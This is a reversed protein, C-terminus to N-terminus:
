RLSRVAQALLAVRDGGSLRPREGRVAWGRARLREFIRAYGAQMLLAPALAKGDLGSRAADAQRFAEEAERSLAECLTAFRPDAVLARAPADELGVSRLRTLPVYVREMAADEDVDRLINVLQLARGLTTAFHDADAAGFIRVALVGVAGAVCRCYRELAADDALRVRDAADSAMGDLMAHFERNPLDYASRAWALERGVPTVPHTPLRDIEERWTDLFRRKEAEPAAGDAIDDVARCFAYVAHIARRREGKAAAMGLAFSSGSRKVMGRVVARDDRQPRVVLVRGARLFARAFDAKGLAVRGDIPDSARLRASLRRGLTVTAAAEAGLRRDGIEAPLSAARALLDDVRDLAADLVPRREAARGPTFFADVGGARELWPLPLYIRDLADRDRELDQLHNLIQLASSLADSAAYAEEGEGHLRLLFRGVPDASRRCYALLEDWDEYRTKVADQRFADLMTRAEALGAHHSAQARLLDAVYPVNEDGCELARAVADLRALKDAASVDPADAIDDAARVFGYFALIPRRLAPAVLRSAVPFNEDRHGKSAPVPSGAINVSM